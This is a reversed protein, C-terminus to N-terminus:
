GSCLPPGGGPPPPPPPRGAAEVVQPDGLGGDRLRERQLRRNARQPGGFKRVVLVVLRAVPRDALPVQPRRHQPRASRDTRPPTAVLRACNTRFPSSSASRTKGCPRWM